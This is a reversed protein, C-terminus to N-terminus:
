LASLKMTWTMFRAFWFYKYYHGQAVFFPSNDYYEASEEEPQTAQTIWRESVIQKGQWRGEHLILSGFKAFDIARANIGSEMKELGNAETNISWSGPYEMGLPSWLKEQLYQTVSKGSVRELIMGILLPNYNNYLWHKAPREVIETRQLALERLNPYMYTLWDDHRPAEEEYRIGSSM